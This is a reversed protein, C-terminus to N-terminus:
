LACEGSVGSPPVLGRWGGSYKSRAPHQSYAPAGSRPPSRQQSWHEPGPESALRRSLHDEGWSLVTELPFWGHERQKREELDTCLGECLLDNRCWMKKYRFMPCACGEDISLSFHLRLVPETEQRM